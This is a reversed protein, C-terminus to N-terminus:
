DNSAGFSREWDEPTDMDLVCGPHDSSVFEVWRPFDRILGRAGVDGSSALLMDRLTASVLVPHGNRGKFTPVVIPKGTKLWVEIVSTVLEVTVEPMDGLMLVLADTEVSAASVGIRLSAGMGEDHEFNPVVSIDASPLAESFGPKTVLVVERVLDCRLLTMLAHHLLPRGKYVRSLKDSGMRRSSGAALVIGTVHM